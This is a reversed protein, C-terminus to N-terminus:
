GEQSAQPPPLTQLFATAASRYVGHRIGALHWHNDHHADLTRQLGGAAGPVTGARQLVCPANHRAEKPLRAHWTTPSGAPGTSSLEATTAAAAGGAAVVVALHQPHTPRRSHMDTSCLHCQLPHSWSQVHVPVAVMPANPRTSAHQVYYLCMQAHTLSTLSVLARPDSGPRAM